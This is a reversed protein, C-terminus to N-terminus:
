CGPLVSGGCVAPSQCGLFCHSCSPELSSRTAWGAERGALRGHLPRLEPPVAM